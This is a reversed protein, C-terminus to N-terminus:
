LNYLDIMDKKAAERTIERWGAPIDAERCGYFEALEKNYKTMFWKWYLQTKPDLSPNIEWSNYRENVTTCLDTVLKDKRERKGFDSSWKQGGVGQPRHCETRHIKCGAINDCPAECFPCAEECGILDDEFFIVVEGIESKLENDLDSHCKAVLEKEEAKLESSIQRLFDESKIENNGDLLDTALETMATTKSTSNIEQMLGNIKCTPGTKDCSKTIAEIEEKIVSNVRQYYISQLITLGNITLKLGRLIYELLWCRMIHSPSVLYGLLSDCSDKEALDILMKAHFTKKNIFTCKHDVSTRFHNIVDRVFHQKVAEGIANKLKRSLKNAATLSQEVLVCENKFMEWIKKKQSMMYVRPDHQEKYAAKLSQLEPILKWVICVTHKAIAKLTFKGTTFTTTIPPKELTEYVESVTKHLFPENCNNGRRKCEYIAITAKRQADEIKIQAFRKLYSESKLIKLKIEKKIDGPEYKVTHISVGNDKLIDQVVHKVQECRACLVRHLTQEIDIENSLEPTDKIWKDWETNFRKELEPDKIGTTRLQDALTRSKKNIELQYKEMDKHVKSRWSVAQKVLKYEDELISQMETHLWSMRQQIHQKWHIVRPSSKIYEEMKTSFIEYNEMLKGKQEEFQKKGETQFTETPINRCIRILDNCNTRCAQRFDRSVEIYENELATYAQIELTNKFSFIFGECLVAKWLASIKHRFEDLTNGRKDMIHKCIIRRLDFVGRAYEPNPPAMPPAGEWLNSMLVVHERHEFSIVDTFSIDPKGQLDAAIKTTEELLNRLKIKQTTTKLSAERDTINQHVFICSPKLNAIEITMLAYVVIQLIDQIDSHNEGMINIVTADALGIIFTAMENDRNNLTVNSLEPARLGETDVVLIYDSKSKKKLEEDLPVLQAFAGKTCRGAGVAFKLGFLFNLMTSKGSAQVGLVSLVFMKKDGIKAKLCTFVANLWAIPVYTADGDMIELPQGDILMEAAIEPLKEIDGKNEIKEITSVESAMEYIQACERIVHELGISENFLKSQFNKVFSRDHGRENQYANNYEERINQLWDGSYRELLASTWNYFYLREISDSFASAIFQKVMVMKSKNKWQELQTVRLSNLDSSLTELDEEGQIDENQKVQLLERSKTAINLSLFQLPFHMLKEKNEHLNKLLKKSKLKCDAINGNTKYDIRINTSIAIDELDELNKSRTTPNSLCQKLADELSISVDKTEDRVILHVMKNAGIFASNISTLFPKWEHNPKKDFVLVLHSPQDNWSTILKMEEVDSMDSQCFLISISSTKMIFEKQVPHNYVNGRLNMMGFATSFSDGDNGMPLYWMIELVGNAMVKKVNGGKSKYNVFHNHKSNIAQNLLESKSLTPRGVRLASVIPLPYMALSRERSPESCTKCLKRLTSMAWSLMEINPTRSPADIGPLILPIGLQCQALKEVLIQRLFDDSCLFLSTLVDLPHVQIEDDTDDGNPELSDDDLFLSLSTTSKVTHTPRNLKFSLGEYNCAIINQLMFWPLQRPHEIDSHKIVNETLKLARQRTIKKPFLDHLELLKLLSCKEYDPLLAM